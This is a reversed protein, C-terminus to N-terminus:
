QYYISTKFFISFMIKMNLVFMYRKLFIAKKIRNLVFDILRFSKLYLYVTTKLSKKIVTSKYTNESYFLM